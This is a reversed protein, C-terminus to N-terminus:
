PLLPQDCPTDKPNVFLNRWNEDIKVGTSTYFIGQTGYRDYKRIDNQGNPELVTLQIPMGQYMTFYQQLANTSTANSGNGYFDYFSGYPAPQDVDGGTIWVGGTTLTNTSPTIDFVSEWIKIGNSMPNYTSDLLEYTRRRKVGSLSQYSCDQTVLLYAPVPAAYVVPQAGCNSNWAYNDNASYALALAQCV